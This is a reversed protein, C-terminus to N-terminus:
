GYLLGSWQRSVRQGAILATKRPTFSNPIFKKPFLSPNTSKVSSSLPTMKITKHKEPFGGAPNMRLAECSFKYNGNDM